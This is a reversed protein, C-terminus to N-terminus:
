RWGKTQKNKYWNAVNVSDGFADSFGEIVKGVAEFEQQVQAAPRTYLIRGHLAPNRSRYEQQSVERWGFESTRIFYVAEGEMDAVPPAYWYPIARLPKSGNVEQGNNRRIVEGNGFPDRYVYHYGDPAREGEGEANGKLTRVKEPLDHYSWRTLPPEPGNVIVAIEALLKSLKGIVYTEEEYDHIADALVHRLMAEAETATLLNTGTGANECGPQKRWRRVPYVGDPYVSDPLKWCLFRNVAAAIDVKVDGQASTSRGESERTNLAAELENAFLAHDNGTFQRVGHEDAQKRGKAILDRAQQELDKTTM